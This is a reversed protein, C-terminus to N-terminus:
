CILGHADLFDLALDACAKPQEIQLLHSTDPVFDYDLRAIEALNMTPMYTHSVTPDAGIVKVPCPVIGFDVTMSWIFVFKNVQAEYDRPCCLEYGPGPAARRLTTRALLEAAETPVREFVPSRSITTALAQPTEFRDRRHRAIASLRAGIGEMDAPFGGSPFVPPDFLTLAAFGGGGEAIQRLVILSSLSHFIGIRPKTGFRRDIERVVRESDEAFVPVTHARRDGIPNWGHNRIDHVFVDFRDVFRSWFPFYADASFGNGHSFVLRPGDPDGHRRVVIVAGDPTHVRFVASPEPIVWPRPM